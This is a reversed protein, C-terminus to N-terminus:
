YPPSILLTPYDLTCLGHWPVFPSDSDQNRDRRARSKGRRQEERRQQYGTFVREGGGGGELYLKPLGAM